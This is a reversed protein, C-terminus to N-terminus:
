VRVEERCLVGDCDADLGEFMVMLASVVSDPFCGGGEGKGSCEEKDTTQASRPHEKEMGAEGKGCAEGVFGGTYIPVVM